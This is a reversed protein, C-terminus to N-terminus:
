KRSAVMTLVNSMGRKFLTEKIKWENDISGFALDINTNTLLAFISFFSWFNIKFNIKCHIFSLFTLDKKYFQERSCYTKSFNTIYIWDYDQCNWYLLFSQHFDLSESVSYFRIRSFYPQYDQVSYKDYITVKLMDYAKVMENTLDVIYQSFFFLCEYLVLVNRIM